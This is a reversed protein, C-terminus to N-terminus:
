GPERGIPSVCICATAIDFFRELGCEALRQRIAEVVSRAKSESRCHVIADDSYREFCLHPFMRKTSQYAHDGRNM